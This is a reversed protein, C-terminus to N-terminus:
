SCCCNSQTHEDLYANMLVIDDKDKQRFEGNLLWSTKANCLFQVTVYRIEDIVISDNLLSYFGWQDGVITWETGINLLGYELSERGNKEKKHFSKNDLLSKYIQQSVIIEVDNSKRLNLANLIGSGIVIAEDPNIGVEAFLAKIDM